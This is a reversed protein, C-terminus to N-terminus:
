FREKLWRVITNLTASHDLLDLHGAGQIIQHTIRGDGQADWDTPSTRASLRDDAGFLLLLPRPAIRCGHDLAGLQVVLRNRREDHLWRWAEVYSMETLPGLGPSVQRLVPALAAVACLQKHASAARIVLDGGLDYGVAALRNPDVEPRKSLYATAAPLTALTEPYSYLEADPNIVLAVIRQAVLHRALAHMSGSRGTGLGPVLCVAPMPDTPETPMYLQGSARGLGVPQAQLSGANTESDRHVLHLRLAAIALSVALALMAGVAFLLALESGAPGPTFIREWQTVFYWAMGGAVLACSLLYGLWPQQSYDLLALGALRSRAAVVQLAALACLFAFFLYGLALERYVFYLM